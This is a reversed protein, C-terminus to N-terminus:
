YLKKYEMSYIDFGKAWGDKKINLLEFGHKEYFKYVVQSTRVTIKHIGNISKLKDLRYNLLKSGFSKGQYNPHFIDWSIIGTNHNDSFNIGGCGVIKENYIVVYYLERKTELYEELEKEEETAFFFPTNLRILNIVENKDKLEYERITMLNTM